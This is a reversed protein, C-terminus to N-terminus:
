WRCISGLRDRENSLTRIFVTTIRRLSRQGRLVSYRDPYSEDGLSGTNRPGSMLGGGHYSSQGEGSGSPNAYVWHRRESDWLLSGTSSTGFSGSDIVILGGFRIVPDDTNLTITSAGVIIESSTVSTFSATGLVTLNQTVLLSGTVQTDKFSASGATTITGTNDVTLIPTGTNTLTFSTSGESVSATVNTTAVQTLNLGVIGSAPINTLGNGDGQFSGSFSGSYGQTDNDALTRGIYVYGSIYLNPGSFAGDNIFQIVGTKYDFQYNSSGITAASAPTSGQSVVVTYGAPSSEADTTDALLPFIYKNSIWNSLQDPNVVQPNAAAVPVPSITFFSLDGTSSRTAKLRNYYRAIPTSGDSGTLILNNQLSSSYPVSSTLILNQQSYVEQSNLDLVRTFTEGSDTNARSYRISQLLRNSKIEKSFSAM